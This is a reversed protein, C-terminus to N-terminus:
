SITTRGGSAGQREIMAVYRCITSTFVADVVDADVDVDPQSGQYLRYVDIWLKNDLRSRLNLLDLSEDIEAHLWEGNIMDVAAQNKNSTQSDGKFTAIIHELYQIIRLRLPNEYTSNLWHRLNELMYPNEVCDVFNFHNLKEKAENLLQADYSPNIFDDDPIYPHPCLLMRVLINDTVCATERRAIFESLKNRATLIETGWDGYKACLEEDYNRWYLWHSLLRSKAERIVTILRADSLTVYKRLTNYGVHGSIIDDQIKIFYDDEIISRRIEPSMTHFRDFKCFQTHDLFYSIRRPKLVEQLLHFVSTGAAKPLHMFLLPPVLKRRTIQHRWKM